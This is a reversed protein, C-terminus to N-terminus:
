HETNITNNDPHDSVQQARSVDLQAAEVVKARMYQGLRLNALDAAKKALQHESNTLRVSTINNAPDQSKPRGREAVWM